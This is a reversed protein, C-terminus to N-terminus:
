RPAETSAALARHLPMPSKALRARAAKLMPKGTATDGAEILARAVWYSAEAAWHSKPEYSRWFEDSIRFAALAEEARGLKLLAQGRTLQLDSLYPYTQLLSL